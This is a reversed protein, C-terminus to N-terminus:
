QSPWSRAPLREAAGFAKDQVLGRNAQMDNLQRSEGRDLDFGLCEPFVEAASRFQLVQHIQMQICQRPLNKVSCRAVTQVLIFFPTRAPKQHRVVAGACVRKRKRLLKEGVHKGHAAGRNIYRGAHQFFGSKDAINSPLNRDDVSM